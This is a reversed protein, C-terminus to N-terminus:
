GRALAPDLGGCVRVRVKCGFRTMGACAGSGSRRGDQDLWYRRLWEGRGWDLVWFGFDLILRVEKEGLGFDM